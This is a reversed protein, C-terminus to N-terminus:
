NDTLRSCSLILIISWAFVEGITAAVEGISRDIYEACINIERYAAGNGQWIGYVSCWGHGAIISSPSSCLFIVIMAVIPISESPFFRIRPTTSPPDSFLSTTFASSASRISRPRFADSGSQVYQVAPFREVLRNLIHRSLLGDDLAALDM